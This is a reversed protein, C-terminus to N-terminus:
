LTGGHDPKGSYQASFQEFWKTRIQGFWIYFERWLGDILKQGEENIVARYYEAERIIMAAKEHAERDIQDAVMRGSETKSHFDALCADLEERVAQLAGCLELSIEASSEIRGAESTREGLQRELEANEASLKEILVEQEKMMNLLDDKGLSRLSKEKM